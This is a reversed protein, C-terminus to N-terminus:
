SATVCRRAPLLEAIGRHDDARGGALMSKRASPSATVSKRVLRVPKTTSWGIPPTAPSGAPISLDVAPDDCVRAEGFQDVRNLRHHVQAGDGVLERGAGRTSTGCPPRCRRSPPGACNSRHTRCSRHAAAREARARCARWPCWARAPPSARSRPCARGGPRARRAATGHADALSVPRRAPARRRGREPHCRRADRVVAGDERLEPQRMHDAMVIRAALAM